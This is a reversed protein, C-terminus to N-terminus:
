GITVWMAPRVGIYDSKQIIGDECVDGYYYVYCTKGAGDGMTRLWYGATGFIPDSSVGNQIAHDTAQALKISDTTCYTNYEQVSLVFIGASDKGGATGYKPNAPTTITAVTDIKALEDASFATAKFDGNLWSALVSTAYTARNTAHFHTAEIVKDTMILAKGDKIALVDWLIHEGGYNGFVVKSGVVAASLAVGETPIRNDAKIRICPRVGAIPYDARYGTMHLSGDAKQLAAHTMEEGTTRLWCNMGIGPVNYKRIEEVSLLFVTDKSIGEGLGTTYNKKTIVTEALLLDSNFSEDAKLSDAFTGNLWERLSCEVWSTYEYADNFADVKVVSNCVLLTKDKEIAVATFGYGGITVQDGVKWTSIEAVSARVIDEDEIMDETETGADNETTPETDSPTQGCGCLCLFLALSLLLARVILKMNKM